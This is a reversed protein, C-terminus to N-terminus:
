LEDFPAAESMYLVHRELADGERAIFVLRFSLYLAEPRAEGTRRAERAIRTLIERRSHETEQAIMREACSMVFLNENWRANLFMRRLVEIPTLRQPRPRFERWQAGSADTSSTLAYEVRPSPRIEDFFRWSPFLAPALLSLTRLM